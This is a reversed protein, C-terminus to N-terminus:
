KTPPSYASAYHHRGKNIPSPKNDQRDCYDGVSGLDLLIPPSGPADVPSFGVTKTDPNDAGYPMMSFRWTLPQPIGHLPVHEEDVELYECLKDFSRAQTADVIATEWLGNLREITHAYDHQKSEADDADSKFFGKKVLTDGVAYLRLKELFMWAETSQTVYWVSINYGLLLGLFGFVKYGFGPLQSNINESVPSWVASVTEKLSSYVDGIVKEMAPRRARLWMTIPAYNWHGAYFHKDPISPQYTYKHYDKEPLTWRPKADDAGGARLLASLRIARAPRALQLAM